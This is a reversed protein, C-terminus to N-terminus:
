SVVACGGECGARVARGRVSYLIYVYIIYLIYMYLIYLVYIIYIYIFYYVYIIIGQALVAHMYLIYTYMVFLNM